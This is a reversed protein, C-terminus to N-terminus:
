QANILSQKTPTDRTQIKGRRYDSLCDRWDLRAQHLEAKSIPRLFGRFGGFWGCSVRRIHVNKPVSKSMQLSHGVLM